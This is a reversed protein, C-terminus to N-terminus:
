CKPSGSPRGGHHGPECVHKPHSSCEWQHDVVGACDLPSNNMPPRYPSGVMVRKVGQLGRNHGPQCVNGPILTSKGSRM